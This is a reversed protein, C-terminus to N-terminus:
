RRSFRVTLLKELKGLAERLHFIVLRDGPRVVTRGSPIEIEDARSVALVLSGSPMNVESLPRGVLGSTELAEVELFEAGEEKLASVSLVKGRRLYRLIAGAAAFRPSVVLDLGLSAVLPLYGAHAVRAIIRRAGLKRGLLAILVNDEEHNTVAAFCDAAGVNESELLALDTGDGHLVMVGELEDAARRCKEEDREIIRTKIGLDVAHVAVLQGIAGGGIVVLSRVPEEHLGFMGLIMRVSATPAAVYAVDGALLREAGTPIITRGGREIAGVLFNRDSARGVEALTQGALPCEPGVRLGVLKVRGGAFPTVSTASPLALFQGIQAAVEREPSIVSAVSLYQDGFVEPFRLHQESRVRAVRKAGPALLKGYLCSIMNVEDSDTVAVLLDAHSVGAEILTKPSSALGAVVQVDMRESIDRLRAQDRDVVVVDQGEGSLRSALHFGVEGAGVIVVRM